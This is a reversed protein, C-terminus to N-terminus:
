GSTTAFPCLAFRVTMPTPTIFISNPISSRPAFCHSRHGAENVRCRPQLEALESPSRRSGLRISTENNGYRSSDEVVPHQLRRRAERGAAEVAAVLALVVPLRHEARVVPVARGGGRGGAAPQVPPPWTQAAVVKKRFEPLMTAAGGRAAEQIVGYTKSYFDLDPNEGPLWHPVWGQEHVLETVIQCPYNGINQGPAWRFDSSRVMPETLYLPDNIIVM